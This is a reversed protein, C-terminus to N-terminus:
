AGETPVTISPVEATASARKRGLILLAVAGVLLAAGSALLVSNVEGVGPIGTDITGGPTETRPTPTPAPTPTPTPTPAPTPTALTNKPYAVVDYTWSGDAEPMPVSVWFPAAPEVVDNPGFGIETVLYLGLPLGALTVAGDPGTTVVDYEGLSFGEPLAPADGEIVAEALEWGEATSLDLPEGEHIVETVTFEIGELPEGAPSGPTSYQEDQVHKHITLSGTRGAEAPEAHANVSGILSAVAVTLAASAIRHLPNM